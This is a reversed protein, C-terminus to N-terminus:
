IPQRATMSDVYMELPSLDGAEIFEIPARRDLARYRVAQKLTHCAHVDTPALVEQRSFLWIPTSKPRDLCAAGV